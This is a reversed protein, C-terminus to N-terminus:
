MFIITIAKIISFKNSTQRTTKEKLSFINEVYINTNKHTITIKFQYNKKSLIIQSGINIVQLLQVLQSMLPSKLSINNDRMHCHITKGASSNVLFIQLSIDQHQAYKRYFPMSGLPIMVLGKFKIRYSREFFYFYFYFNSEMYFIYLNVQLHYPNLQTVFGWATHTGNGACPWTVGMIRNALSRCELPKWIVKTFM